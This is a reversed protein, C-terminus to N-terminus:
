AIAGGCDVISKRGQARNLMAVLKADAEVKEVSQALTIFGEDDLAFLAEKMWVRCSISERFRASYQIPIQGLREKFAGHLVPDLDGLKLVLLLENATAVDEPLRALCEFEWETMGSRNVLHLMEGSTAATRLYFSWHFSSASGRDTLVLYLSNLDFRVAM